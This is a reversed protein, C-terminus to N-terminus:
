NNTCVYKEQTEDNTKMEINYPLSLINIYVHFLLVLIMLTLCLWHSVYSCFSLMFISLIRIHILIIVYLM